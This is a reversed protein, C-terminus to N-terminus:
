PKSRRSGGFDIRRGPSRLRTANEADALVPDLTAKRRPAPWNPATYLVAAPVLAFDRECIRQLAVTLGCLLPLIIGYAIHTFIVEVMLAMFSAFLCYALRSIWVLERRRKSAKYVRYALRMSYAMAWAYLILGPIGTESALQLYTNHPQVWATQRNREESMAQGFQGPGVGFLPHKLTLLIGAKIVAARQAASGSAYSLRRATDEPNEGEPEEEVIEQNSQFMARFRITAGEPLVLILVTGAVALAAAILAGRKLSGHVLFMVTLIALGILGMRSGTRLATYMVFVSIGGALLRTLAARSSDAVVIMCFPLGFLVYLAIDNPNTLSGSVERSIGLRGEVDAGYFASLMAIVFAGAAIFWCIKRLQQATGILSTVALFCLLALSYGTLLLELSGRPWGSFPVTAVAWCGFAALLLAPKSDFARGIGATMVIFLAVAATLVLPLHARFHIYEPLRTYLAFVLAIAAYGGLRRMVDHPGENLLREVKSPQM